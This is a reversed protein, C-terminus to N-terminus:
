VHNKKYTCSKKIDKDNDLKIKYSRLFQDGESIL